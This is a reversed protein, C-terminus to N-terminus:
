KMAVRVEFRKGVAYPLLPSAQPRGDVVIEAIQQYGRSQDFEVHYEAGRFQRTITCRKWEPPLCPDLRLGAFEPRLGFVHNLLASYFWGASGTGWSQGPLGYRYSGEIAYYSNCLAYPEATKQRYTHDAPLIKHIAMAVRDHRKLMCDAVLKFASAHLYVGGNEQTGPMKLSMWGINPQWHSYANLVKITGIDRELLDDVSQMARIGKDGEAIGSLIAWAQPLLFLTGEANTHSGLVRGEDDYARLYWKGDWGHEDVLRRMERGRGEAVTADAERGSLRALEIFQRNALYWAMSLWVSVGKGAPGVTNLCDNWDGSRIRPLGFLGRDNWYYDLARKVHEYLSASSGDNFPAVEDLLALDGTEMILRHVSEAIWVHNDSFDKDQIQGDLWTRPAYGSSYQYSLVRHLQERASCTHISAMAAIDQMQDRYGNHRVRAWQIGLSIQRKLWPAVLSNLNPDPAEIRNTGLQEIVGRQVAALEKEVAAGDAFRSRTRAIEEISTAAGAIASFVSEQGPALEVTTEVACICKEMHSAHNGCAGRVVADPRQDTGLGVFSSYACDHGTIPVNLGLHIMTEEADAFRQRHRVVVAGVAAELQGAVTYYGQPKLGGDFNTNYYCFVKLRRPRDGVNRLRITWIECPEERPVFCGFSSAIGACTQEITSYGMGHVCRYASRAVEPKLAPQGNIAWFAGTECDHVFVARSSVVAIRRGMRDQRLSEGQGTQSFFSVYQGNWLYNYWERPTAPTTIVFERAADDFHGYTEPM